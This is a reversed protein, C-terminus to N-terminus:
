QTFFSGGYNTDVYIEQISKCFLMNEDCNISKM